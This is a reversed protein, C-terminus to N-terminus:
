FGINIGVNITRNNPYNYASSNLDPDWLKFPSFTCLNIASVYVRLHEMYFKTSIRKPLTYGIEANKLRLYRGNKHWFTSPQANNPNQDVSLRPYRANVDPNSESWYNGWVDSFVSAEKINSTIFAMTQTSNVYISVHGTGQFFLACDFGRWNVSAGFGYVIEPVNRYDLPKSDYNNVVGDGNLDLYKIDGPRVESGLDQKVWSDIDAQDKFLGVAVYGKEQWRAQGQDSQYAWEYEPQDNDLIVNRAYTFNGRASVLVEGFKQHYDLSTDIGSNRMKGINVYPKADLGAYYPISQRRMFIGSRNEYFYDASIKLKGFLSMDFGANFKNAEEWGVNPNAWEGIAVASYNKISQGFYYSGVGSTNVTANYIFRRDGGIQDDGVKGYSAKLKLVDIYNVLPAFFKENSVLWGAAVSPFFGFRHGPSFNESGNYGFNGEIFYRYDYDYTVRGAIGQHRYPLAAESSSVGNLNKQSQQYLFLGTVNHKGFQRAYNLTAELYVSRTGSHGEGYSLAEQGVVRQSYDRSGDPQVELMYQPPTKTRALHNYNSADFSFKVNARLGKTVWDGLDQTM